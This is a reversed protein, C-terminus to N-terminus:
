VVAGALGARAAYRKVGRYYLVGDARLNEETVPEVGRPTEAVISSLEVCPTATVGRLTIAFDEFCTTSWPSRATCNLITYDLGEERLAAEFDIFGSERKLHVVRKPFSRGEHTSNLQFHSRWVTGAHWDGLVLGGTRATEDRLFRQLEVITPPGEEKNWFRNLNGDPARVAYSDVNVVPLIMWRTRALLDADAAAAEFASTIMFFGLREMMNHQGAQMYVLPADPNGIELVRIPRGERSRGVLHIKGGFRQASRDLWEDSMAVTVPQSAAFLAEDTAFTHSFDLNGQYPDNRFVRWVGQNPRAWTRGGDESVVAAIGMPNAPWHLFRLTRGKAGRLRFSFWSNCKEGASFALTDPTLAFVRGVTGYEFDQDVRIGAPLASGGLAPFDVPGRLGRYLAASGIHVPTPGASALGRGISLKAAGAHQAPGGQRAAEGAKPPVLDIQYFNSRWQALPEGAPTVALGCGGEETLVVAVHYWRGPLLSDILIESGAVDVHERSRWAFTLAGAHDFALRWGGGEGAAEALTCPTRLPPTGPPWTVWCEFTFPPRVAEAPVSDVVCVGGALVGGDGPCRGARASWAKVLSNDEAAGCPAPTVPLVDRLILTM